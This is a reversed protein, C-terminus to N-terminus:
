HTFHGCEWGVYEHSVSDDFGVIFVAFPFIAGLAILAGCARVGGFFFGDCLPARERFFALAVM